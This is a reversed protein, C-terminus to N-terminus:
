GELALTAFIPNHDSSEVSSSGSEVVRLGRVFVHDLANGFVQTRHDQPFSLPALQLGRMTASVLLMREDSWTNFDGSFIVPGQHREIVSAADRIQAALADSTWAFNVGHLNV